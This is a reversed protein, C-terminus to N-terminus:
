VAFWHHTCEYSAFFAGVTSFRIVLSDGVDKRGIEKLYSVLLPWVGVIIAVLHLHREYRHGRPIRSLVCDMGSGRSREFPKGRIGDNLVAGPEWVCICCDLPPLAEAVPNCVHPLGSAQCPVWKGSLKCFSRGYCASMWICLCLLHMQVPLMWFKQWFWLSWPPIPASDAWCRLVFVVFHPGKGRGTWWVFKRAASKSSSAARGMRRWEVSCVFFAAPACGTWFSRSFCLLLLGICM